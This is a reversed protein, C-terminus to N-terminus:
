IAPQTASSRSSAISIDATTPTTEDDDFVDLPRIYGQSNNHEIQEAPLKKPSPNDVIKFSLDRETM